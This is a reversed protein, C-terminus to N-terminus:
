DARRTLGAAIERHVAVYGPATSKLRERLLETMRPLRHFPVTPMAHHATHHPMNWTIWCVLPSTFTTRSNLLMDPVLPLGTHEAMLYARLFPQGIVAPLVWIWILWDWRYVIGVAAIVAYFALYLRAEAIVRERAKGPVYRGIDRGLATLILTKGAGFWLPVGTLRWVYAPWTTPRPTALEPDNDPDQTFRHHALHFYRFWRPPLILIAGCAEALTKNIWESRFATGHICEHELTFLFVLGIGQALLAPALVWPNSQMFIIASTLALLGFHFALRVLGPRDLTERLAAVEGSRLAALAERHTVVDTM